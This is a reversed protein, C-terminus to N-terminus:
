KTKKIVWWPAMTSERHSKFFMENLIFLGSILRMAQQYIPMLFMWGVLKLDHKPRESILLFLFYM